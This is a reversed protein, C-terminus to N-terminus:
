EGDCADRWDTPCLQCWSPRVEGDLDPYRGTRLFCADTSIGNHETACEHCNKPMKSIYLVAEAISVSERDMGHSDKEDDMSIELFYIKGFRDVVKLRIHHNTEKSVSFEKLLGLANLNDAMEQANRSKKIVSRLDEFTVRDSLIVSINRPFGKDTVLNMKM